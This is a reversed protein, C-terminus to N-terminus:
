SAASGGSRGAPPRWTEPRSGDPSSSEAPDRAGGRAASPSLRVPSGSRPPPKPSTGAEGNGHVPRSRQLRRCRGYSRVCTRRVEPKRPPGHTLPPARGVAGGRWPGRRRGHAVGASWPAIRGPPPLPTLLGLRPREGVPAIGDSGPREVGPRKLWRRGDAQVIAIRHHGTGWGPSRSCSASGRRTEWAPQDLRFPPSPDLARRRSGRRPHPM